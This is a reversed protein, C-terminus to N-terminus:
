MRYTAAVGSAPAVSLDDRRRSKQCRVVSNLPRGRGQAASANTVPHLVKNM